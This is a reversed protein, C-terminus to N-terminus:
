QAPMAANITIEFKLRIYRSQLHFAIHSGAIFAEKIRVRSEQSVFISKHSYINLM